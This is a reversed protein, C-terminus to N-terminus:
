FLYPNPHIIHYDKIRNTPIRYGSNRVVAKDLPKIFIRLRRLVLRLIKSECSFKESSLQEGKKLMSETSFRKIHIKKYDENELLRSELIKQITKSKICYFGTGIAITKDLGMIEYDSYLNKISGRILIDPDTKVLVYDENTIYQSYTLYRRLFAGGQGEGKLRKGELYIINHSKCYAEYDPLHVGDSISYIIASPHYTRIMSFVYPAWKYDYSYVGVCFILKM